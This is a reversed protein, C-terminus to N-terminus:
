CSGKKGLRWSMLLCSDYIAFPPQSHLSVTALRALFSTQHSYINSFVNTLSYTEIFCLGQFTGPVSLYDFAMASLKPYVKWHGWWWAIPDSVKEIAQSLYDDLENVDCLGDMPIDLFNMMVDM